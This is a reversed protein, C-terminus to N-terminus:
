VEKVGYKMLATKPACAFDDAAGWDFRFLGEGGGGGVSHVRTRGTLDDIVVTLTLRNGARYYHKEYVATIVTGESCTLVHRDIKEGTLSGSVIFRDIAKLAEEPAVGVYFDKM